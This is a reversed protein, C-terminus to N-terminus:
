PRQLSNFLEQSVYLANGSEGQTYWHALVVFNSKYLFDKIWFYNTMGNRGSSFFSQLYIIKVKKLINPSCQLAQLEFGELELKLIDIQEINNLQCWEDLIMCPVEIPEPNRWKSDTLPPLLSSAHEYSLDDGNPGRCLYFSATGNHDGIALYHTKVNKLGTEALHKLMEIYARPNAEIAFIKAEPWVRAASYTDLGIYAGVHVIVPQKGPLIQQMLSWNIQGSKSFTETGEYFVVANVSLCSLAMFGFLHCVKFM